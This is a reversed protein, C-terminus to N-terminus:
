TKKKSISFTVTKSKINVYVYISYINFTLWVITVPYKVYDKDQLSAPQFIKILGSIRKILM